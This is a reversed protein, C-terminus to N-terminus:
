GLHNPDKISKLTYKTESCAKEFDCQFVLVFIVM